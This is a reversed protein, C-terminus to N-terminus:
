ISESAIVKLIFLFINKKMHFFTINFASDYM